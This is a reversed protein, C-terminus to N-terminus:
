NREALIEEILQKQNQHDRWSALMAAIVTGVYLILLATDMVNFFLMLLLATGWAILTIFVTRRLSAKRQRLEQTSLQAYFAKPNRSARNMCRLKALLNM